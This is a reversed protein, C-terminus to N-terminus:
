TLLLCVCGANTAHRGSRAHAIADALSGGGDPETPKFQAAASDASSEVSNRLELIGGICSPGIVKVLLASSFHNECGRIWTSTSRM